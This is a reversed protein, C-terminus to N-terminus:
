RVRALPISKRYVMFAHFYWYCCLKFGIFGVVYTLADAKTQQKKKCPDAKLIMLSLLFNGFLSFNELSASRDVTPFIFLPFSLVMLSLQFTIIVPGSSPATFARRSSFFDTFCCSPLCLLTHFMSKPQQISFTKVHLYHLFYM